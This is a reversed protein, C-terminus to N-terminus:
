NHGHRGPGAGESPHQHYDDILHLRLRQAQYSLEILLDREVHRCAIAHGVVADLADILDARDHRCSRTHATVADVIRRLDATM